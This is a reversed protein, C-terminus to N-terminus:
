IKKYNVIIYTYV